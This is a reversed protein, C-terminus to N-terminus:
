VGSGCTESCAVVDSKMKEKIFVSMVILLLIALLFIQRQLSKRAMSAAKSDAFLLKEITEIKNLLKDHAVKVEIIDKELDVTPDVEGEDYETPTKPLDLTPASKMKRPPSLAGVSTLRKPDETELADPDAGMSTALARKDTIFLMKKMLKRVTKRVGVSKRGSGGLLSSGGADSNRSGAADVPLPGGAALDATSLFKPAPAAIMTESVSNNVTTTTTTTTTKTSLSAEVVQQTLRTENDIAIQM